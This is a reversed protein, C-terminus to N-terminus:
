KHGLLRRDLAQAIWPSILLAVVFVIPSLFSGGILSAIWTVFFVLLVATCVSLAYTVAYTVYRKM